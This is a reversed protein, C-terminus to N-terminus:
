TRESSLAPTPTRPARHRSPPSWPLSVGAYVTSVVCIDRGGVTRLNADFRHRLWKPYPATARHHGQSTFSFGRRNAGFSTWQSGLIIDVEAPATPQNGSGISHNNRMGESGADWPLRRCGISTKASRLKRPATSAWFSIDVTFTKNESFSIHTLVWGWPACMVLM